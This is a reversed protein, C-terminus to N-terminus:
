GAKVKTLSPNRLEYISHGCWAGLIALLAFILSSIGILAFVSANMFIESLMSLLKQNGTEYSRYCYAICVLFYLSGQLAIKNFLTQKFISNLMLSILFPFYWFPVILSVGACILVLLHYLFKSTM